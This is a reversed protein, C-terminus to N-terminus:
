HMYSPMVYTATSDESKIADDMHCSTATTLQALSQSNPSSSKMIASEHVIHCNDAPTTDLNSMAHLYKTDDDEVLYKAGNM